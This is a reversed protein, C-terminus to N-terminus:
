REDFLVAVEAGDEGDWYGKTDKAADEVIFRAGGSEPPAVAVGTKGSDPYGVVEPWRKTSLALYVLDEAGTNILQHALEPGGAPTVIYDGERVAHTEAGFRLVGSGSVVYFHEENAHHHHLPFAARGPPVTTVNAGIQVGGIPASLPSLRAQFTDGHSLERADGNAVADAINLVPKMVKEKRRPRAALESIM